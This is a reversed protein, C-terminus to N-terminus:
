GKSVDRPLNGRRTILKGGLRTVGAALEALAENIFILHSSDFEPSNLFEPEYVYLCM